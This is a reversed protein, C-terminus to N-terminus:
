SQLRSVEELEAFFSSTRRLHIALEEPRCPIETFLKVEVQRCNEFNRAIALRLSPNGRGYHALIYALRAELDVIRHHNVRKDAYYVIEKESYGAPLVGERLRVHEGVIDAIEHLQHQICIRQGERAHDSESGLCPTKAIDHLLAGAVAKEVSLSHGQERLCRVLWEAIRAVVVSHARINDLMRYRAMLEFCEPVSPIM